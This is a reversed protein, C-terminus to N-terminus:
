LFFFGYPANKTESGGCQVCLCTNIFPKRSSFIGFSHNRVSWTKLTFICPSQTTSRTHSRQIKTASRSSRTFTNEATDLVARFFNVVKKLCRKFRKVNKNECKFDVSFIITSKRSSINGKLLAHASGFDLTCKKKASKYVSYKKRVIPILHRFKSCQVYVHNFNSKFVFQSICQQQVIRKYM